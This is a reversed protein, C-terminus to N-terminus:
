CYGVSRCSGSSQWVVLASATSSGMTPNLVYNIGNLANTSTATIVGSGTASDASVSQVYKTATTVNLPMGYKGPLCNAITAGAAIQLETVCVEVGIKYPTTATVVESFNAKGVFTQYQPVAIAALIGIIAIVIMLEILTFGRYNTSM